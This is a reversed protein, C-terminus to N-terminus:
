AIRKDNDDSKIAPSSLFNGVQSILWDEIAEKQADSLRDYDSKKLRQFPWSIKDTPSVSHDTENKIAKNIDLQSEALTDMYGSPLSLADEISRAMRDGMVKPKGGKSNISQNLIQSFTSDRASRGIAVNLASIGGYAEVIKKLRERRIEATTKMSM